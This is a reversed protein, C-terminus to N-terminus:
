HSGSLRGTGCAPIENGIVSINHRSHCTEKFNFSYQGIENLFYNSFYSLNPFKHNLLHFLDQQNLIQGQLPYNFCLVPRLDKSIFGPFQLALSKKFFYVM